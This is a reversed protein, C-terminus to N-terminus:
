SIVVVMNSLRQCLENIRAQYSNFESRLKLCESRGTSLNVTMTTRTLRKLTELENQVREFEEQTVTNMPVISIFSNIDWGFEFALLSNSPVSGDPSSVLRVQSVNTNTQVGTCKYIVPSIAALVPLTSSSATTTSTFPTSPIQTM